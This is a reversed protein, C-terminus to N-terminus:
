FTGTWKQTKKPLINRTPRHGYTYKDLDIQQKNLIRSLERENGYDDYNLNYDNYDIEEYDYISYSLCQKLTGLFLLLMWLVDRPLVMKM